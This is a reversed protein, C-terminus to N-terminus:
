PLDYYDEQDSYKSPAPGRDSLRRPGRLYEDDRPHYQQDYPSPYAASRNGSASASNNSNNNNSSSRNQAAKSIQNVGYMAVVSMITTKILGM